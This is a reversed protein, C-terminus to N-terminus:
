SFQFPPPAGPHLKLVHDLPHALFAAGYHQPSAVLAKARILAATAVTVPSVPFGIAIDALDIGDQPLIAADQVGEVRAAADLHRCGAQFVLTEVEAIKGSGSARAFASGTVVAVVLPVDGEVFVIEEEDNTVFM